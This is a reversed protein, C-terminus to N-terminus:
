KKNGTFKKLSYGNKYNIEEVRLNYGNQPICAYYVDGHRITITNIRFVEGNDSEVVDLLKFIPAPRSPKCPECAALKSGYM